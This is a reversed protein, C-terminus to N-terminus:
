STPAARQAFHPWAPLVLRAARGRARHRHGARRDGAVPRRADARAARRLHVEGRDARPRALDRRVPAAAPQGDARARDRGDAARRGLAADRAFRPARGAASVAPLRAGADLRRAQGHEQGGASKGGGVPQPVPAPGGAGPERRPARPSARRPRRRSAPSLCPMPAAGRQPRRDSRLFTSKGAGNAGIVAAIEGEELEFDIGFLAQFDGYFATLGRTALLTM